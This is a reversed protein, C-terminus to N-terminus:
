IVVYDSLELPFYKLNLFLWPLNKRSERERRCSIFPILLLILYIDFRFDQLTVRTLSFSAM